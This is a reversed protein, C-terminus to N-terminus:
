WDGEEFRRNATRIARCGLCVRTGDAEPPFWYDPDVDDIEDETRHCDACEYGGTVRAAHCDCDCGGIRCKGVHGWQECSWAYMLTQSV